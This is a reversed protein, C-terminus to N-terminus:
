RAGRGGSLWGDAVVLGPFAPKRGLGPLTVFYQTHQSLWSVCDSLIQLGRLFCCGEWPGLWLRGWGVPQLSLVWARKGMSDCPRLM